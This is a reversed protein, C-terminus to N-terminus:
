ELWLEELWPSARPGFWGLGGGTVPLTAGWGRPVHLAGCPAFFLLAVESLLSGRDACGLAGSRADASLRGLCGPRVVWPASPASLSSDYRRAALTPRREGDGRLIVGATAGHQLLKGPDQFSEVAEDTWSSTPRHDGIYDDNPMM